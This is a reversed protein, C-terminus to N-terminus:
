RRDGSLAWAAAAWRVADGARPPCAAPGFTHEAIRSSGLRLCGCLRGATIAVRRRWRTTLAALRVGLPYRTPVGVLAVAQPAQSRLPNRM